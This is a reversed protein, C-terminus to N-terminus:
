DCKGWSKESTVIDVPITIPIDYPLEMECYRKIEEKCWSENTPYQGALSDHVQLLIEVPLKGRTYANDIKVMGRNIVLGVTSQPEWAAMIQMLTPADKNFVYKRYGFINEIWGRKYVQNKLERHWQAIEPNRDKYWKRLKSVEHILLGLREAQGKESAIYHYSHAFAKFTIYEKDYKTKNTTHHYENMMVVYPKLGESLMQQLGSAGSIAVVVRLDASDLDIDFFTYGPDPIFLSRCNPIVRGSATKGGKTIFQHNTGSGFVNKSSSLRYSDTGCLNYSTRLRNDTDLKSDIVTTRIKNLKSYENLRLIIPRLLSFKESFMKLASAGTTLRKTKPDYQKPMQFLDYFLKQMQKPSNQNFPEGVTFDIEEKLHQCLGGLEKSLRSKEKRDAKVGRNMINVLVPLTEELQFRYAEQLTQPATEYIKLFTNYVEFTYCCDKCNYIWHERNTKGKHFAGEDKWYKYVKTYLSSLFALNKDMGAFLVHQQVMTDASARAKIALDRWFYQMDYWYNQGIQFCNKHHLFETLLYNLEVEEGELWYTPTTLGAWPICIAETESVAIGVCDHYGQRTEVDVAYPIPEKSAEMRSLEMLFFQKVEEFSNEVQFNYGRAEETYEYVEGKLASKGIRGARVFDQQIVLGYDPLKWSAQPPLLPLLVHPTEYEWFSGLKLHSARWKLLTGFPSKKTDAVSTEGSLFYMAWRGVCIILGPNVEKIEEKLTQLDGAAFNLISDKKSQKWHTYESVPLGTLHFLAGLDGKEPRFYFVYSAHIQLRPIGVKGLESFLMSASQSSYASKNKMELALPCDGIVMVPRQRLFKSRPLYKLSDTDLM